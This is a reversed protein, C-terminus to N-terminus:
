TPIKSDMNKSPETEGQYLVLPHTWFGTSIDYVHSLSLGHSFMSLKAITAQDDEVDHIVICDLVLCKLFKSRM